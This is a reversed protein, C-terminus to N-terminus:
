QPSREANIKGGLAAKRAWHHYKELAEMEQWRRWDWSAGPSWAKRTAFGTKAWQDWKSWYRKSFQLEFRDQPTYFIGNHNM